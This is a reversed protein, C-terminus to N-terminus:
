ERSKSRQRKLRRAKDSANPEEKTSKKEDSEDYSDEYDHPRSLKYLDAKNKTPLINRRM